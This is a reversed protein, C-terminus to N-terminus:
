LGLRTPVRSWVAGLNRSQQRKVTSLYMEIEHLGLLRPLAVLPSSVARRASSGSHLRPNCTSSLCTNPQKLCYWRARSTTFSVIRSKSCSPKGSSRPCILLPRYRFPALIQPSRILCWGRFQMLAIELAQSVVTHRKPAPRIQLATHGGFPNPQQVDQM